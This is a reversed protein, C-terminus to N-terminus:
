DDALEPWWEYSETAHLVHVEGGVAGATAQELIQVLHSSCATM